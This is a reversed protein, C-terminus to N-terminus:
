RGAPAGLSSWTITLIQGNLSPPLWGVTGTITLSASAGAALTAETGSAVGLPPHACASGFVPAQTTGPVPGSYLTHGDADTIHISILAALAPNDSAASVWWCARVDGDNTITLHQPGLAQGSFVQDHPPALTGDTAIGLTLTPTPQMLRGWLWWAVLLLLVFLLLLGLRSRREDRTDLAEWGTSGTAPSAASRRAPEGKTPTPWEASAFARETASAPLNTPDSPGDLNPQGM